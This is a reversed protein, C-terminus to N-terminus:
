VVLVGDIDKMLEATKTLAVIIKQYHMIDEFSLERGKRDKLWKQAPQYGGIYFEWATKPVNNFYQTDNIYVKGLSDPNYVSIDVEITRNTEEPEESMTVNFSPKVVMNDGDIPYQTIYKETEASELLHLERIQSGLNVLDFFQKPNTPYPVRPFDIKLFEKYKERYAPSHLVAYIYDLLDIPAFAEDGAKESPSPAQNAYHDEVGSLSVNDEVGSLSVNPNSNNTVSLPTSANKEAVFHLGTKEEIERVIDMNLNPVRTQSEGISLQNSTEPYLYLPATYGKSFATGLIHGDVISQSIFINTFDGIVCQREYTLGVNNLDIFHKFNNFMPYGNIGKTIGTYIIKRNDFPRYQVERIKPTNRQIDIKASELKWDRSDNNINYKLGITKEELNLFDLIVTKLKEESFDIVLSDKRTEIGSSKQIFLENLSIGNKYSEILQFDKEVFFYSPEENDLEKWEISDLSNDNLFDYKDERKGYLDFHFVQALKDKSM